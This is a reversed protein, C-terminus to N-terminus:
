SINNIVEDIKTFVDIFEQMMKYKERFRKIDNLAQELLLDRYNGHKILNTTLHYSKSDDGPSYQVSVLARTKLEIDSKMVTVEIQTIMLYAQHLRHKNAAVTDDWDFCEHLVNDVNTAEKVIFEPEVSGYKEEIGAFYLGAVNAPVPWNFYKWKYNM